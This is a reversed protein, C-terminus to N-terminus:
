YEEENMSTNDTYTTGYKKIIKTAVDHWNHPTHLQYDEQEVEEESLPLIMCICEIAEKDTM